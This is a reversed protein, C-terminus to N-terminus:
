FGIRVTFTFQKPNPSSVGGAVYFEPDQGNLDKDAYILFPNVAAVKLSITRASIAQAWRQPFDYALSIEKMRIFGGDAVRLDSYNYASYAKRINAVDNYQRRSAIVPINTYLEDGPLMWRNKYTDSTANLDSYYSSFIPRMRIKNGFAYTMFVGLTFKKYTFTNNFGGTIPPDSPGEYRLFSKIQDEDSLQFNVDAYNDQTIVKGDVWEFMPLGDEDLGIFPISFLAGVPYGELSYSSARVLSMLATSSVLNTIKNRTYSFSLNTNWKFDKTAINRTSITIEVGSSKMDAINAYRRIQGSLGQTSLRGILDFNNRWYVDAQLSIRDKLFGADLGINLEHKKEYTLSENESESIYLGTERDEATPKWPNTSYILDTSNAVWSPGADATLSYSAKLSLHSLAPRLSKFFSEDHINWAGAVNWTPLWRASSSRGLRNTGEYRFTGNLIYKGKYSYTGQAFFAVNKKTSNYLTFYNANSEEFWKFAMYDFKALEGYDYLMGWGKFWDRSRETSNIEMGGYLHMIHVGNFDTNYNIDARFDTTRMRYETKEFIGGEELISMPLANTFDPNTYLFPNNNAVTDDSMERYARSINSNDKVHWQMSNSSYKMAALASVMLGSLPEWTLKGQFSADLVNIDMYNDDLEQFINFGTYNRTHVDYAGLTRSTNLAFSYPNIDFDRKVEGYVTDVDQGLTGPAEQNRYSASAKMYLTFGKIIRYTSNASATYRTVSSRTYWGPDDLISISMYNNAKDTGTSVSISHSQMVTTKFLEDFWDTNRFEAKRLFANKAKDTNELGFQGTKENYNNILKYMQGYVGSHRARYVESFNLWGKEELEQYVGMQDQSNMIDFESYRPKLRTTFEGTYNIRMEGPRGKKTTIAIVGAMARAGYISTASGDKLIQFDEIDDPSLGAIASSILTMADGTSLDDASVEAVDEVIVGDVVWLPKSSGYISTAGRIRIKPATGFTGSVNQVSVGASRGELGRSIDAVGDLKVDQSSLKDTAGTFLRKDMTTMGTVVVGEITQESSELIIDFHTQSGLVLERTRLGLCSIEIKTTPQLNDSLSFHGNVDTTAGRSTGSITISAGIVPDGYIDKVTGTITVRGPQSVPRTRIIISNSQIVYEYNSNRLVEGLVEEVPKGDAKININSVNQMDANMVFNLGTQDKIAQLVTSLNGNSVDLTVRQQQGFAYSVAFISLVALTAVKRCLSATKSPKCRERAERNTSAQKM